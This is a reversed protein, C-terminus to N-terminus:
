EAAATSHLHHNQHHVLPLAWLQRRIRGLQGALWQAVNACVQVEHAVAPVLVRGLSGGELADDGMEPRDRLWRSCSNSM